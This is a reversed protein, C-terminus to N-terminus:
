DIKFENILLFGIAPAITNVLAIITWHSNPVIPSFWEFTLILGIYPISSSVGGRLTLYTALLNITFIPVFTGGVFVMVSEADLFTLNSFEYLSFYLFTYFISIVM